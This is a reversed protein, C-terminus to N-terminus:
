VGRMELRVKLRLLQRLCNWYLFARPSLSLYSEFDTITQWEELGAGRYKRCAREFVNYGAWDPHGKSGKQRVNYTYLVKPVNLFEVNGSESLRCLQDWDEFYKFRLRSLFALAVARPLLMTGNVFTVRNYGRRFGAVIEEHRTPLKLVHSESRIRREVWTGVVRPRQGAMAEKMQLEIRTPSSYDDADQLAIYEGRGMEIGINRSSAIGAPESQKEYLRIRPDHFSRVIEPTSDTSRDDIVILELNDYTQRLVSEIAEGIYQRENKAAMIVSVCPTDSAQPTRGRVQAPNDENPLNATPTIRVGAVTASVSSTVDLKREIYVKARLLQKVSNWYLFELPSCALYREFERLSGWEEHGTHRRARCAREFINYRLWASQNKVGKARINYTYLVEPVNRFEVTRLEHIRCLQDWDQLNKFRVRSPVALGLDRPLLLTGGVITVRNYGRELGAVIAEHSTPLRWVRSGSATRREVWTGVIRPRAGGLAEKVQLEIRNPRSYDDADQYAVFTGRAMKTGVNRSASLGRPEKTRRYVRIRPDKFSRIVEPTRDTSHDDIIILELNDYTQRLVSEIAEGIYKEENLASMIVSVKHTSGQTTKDTM